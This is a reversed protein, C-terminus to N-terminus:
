AHPPEKRAQQDASRKLLVVTVLAFLATVAFILAASSLDMGLDFFIVSIASLLSVIAAASIWGYRYKAGYWLAYGSIAFWLIRHVANGEPYLPIGLLAVALLGVWSGIGALTRGGPQEYKDRLLGYGCLGGWLTASLVFFISLMTKGSSRDVNAESWELGNGSLLSSIEILHFFFLGVATLILGHWLARSKLFYGNLAVLGAVLNLGWFWGSQWGAAGFEFHMFIAIGGFVLAAFGAAASRGALGILSAAFASLFVAGIPKGPLNYAQGILAVSGAFILSALLSLGNSIKKSTRYTLAAGICTSLFIVTLLILKLGRPFAAWNDGIFTIVALGALLTGAMALWGRGDGSGRVEVSNLIPDRSSDAVWGNEIWTSLDRELRKRYSSTKM